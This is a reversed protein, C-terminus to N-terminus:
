NVAGTYLDYYKRACTGITFYTNFTDAMAEEFGKLDSELYEVLSNRYAQISFDVSLFGNIGNKIIDVPGSTPTCIPVTNCGFAEILSIPMGEYISSLLFANAHRMYDLLNKKPGMFHIKDCSISELYKGLDSNFGDGFIFLRILPYKLSLENFAKIMLQQNKQEECRAAHIFVIEDPNKEHEKIERIANEYSSSKADITRGNYIIPINRMKIRERLSQYNTQSIAILSVLKLKYIPITIFSFNKFTIIIDASNHLTEFYKPKRFFLVSFVFFLVINRGHFHVIDPNIGKLSRHLKILKKIGFGSDIALNHYRVRERVDKKYFTNKEDEDPRITLLHVEDNLDDSLENTLDVVLREAGGIGLSYSIYLIRM